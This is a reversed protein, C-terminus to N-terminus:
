AVLQAAGLLTETGKLRSSRIATRQGWNAPLFGPLKETLIPELLDWANVAVSGGLVIEQPDLLVMLDSLTLAFSTFAHDLVAKAGTDGLQVAQVLTKASCENTERMVRQFLTGEDAQAALKKAERELAWGAAVAEICGRSGCACPESSESHEPDFQVKLHGIEAGMGQGCFIKRNLIVGGGIGTSIQIYIFPDPQGGSGYRWEGLAAVNGDNGMAAPLHFHDSIRQPLPMDEWGKVHMSRVVRSGDPAVMGGFSIGAGRLRAMPLMSERLSEEAIKVMRQLSAEAGAAAPTATKRYAILEGDALRVIAAALKTGGFDLALAHDTQSDNM